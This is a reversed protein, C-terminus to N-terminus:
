KLPRVLSRLYKWNQKQYAKLIPTFIKQLRIETEPFYTRRGYSGPSFKEFQHKAARLLQENDSINTYNKKGYWYARSFQESPNDLGGGRDADNVIKAVITKPNGTSARHERVAGCIEELDASSLQSTLKSDSRIIKEGYLEHKERNVSLGIDHLTAAIYVLDIKNPAYKKALSLACNRVVILHQRNHGDDFSDYLDEYKSLNLKVM